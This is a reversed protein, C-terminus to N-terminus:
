TFPSKGWKSVCRSVTSPLFGAGGPIYSVRSIIPYKGYWSTCSKKWWGYWKLWCIEVLQGLGELTPLCSVGHWGEERIREWAEVWNEFRHPLVQFINCTSATALKKSTFTQRAFFRLFKSHELSVWNYQHPQKFPRTSIKVNQCSSPKSPGKYNSTVIRIYNPLSIYLVGGGLYCPYHDAGSCLM